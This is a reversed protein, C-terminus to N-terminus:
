VMLSHWPRFSRISAGGYGIQNKDMGGSGNQGLELYPIGVQLVDRLFFTGSPLNEDYGVLLHMLEDSDGLFVFFVKGIILGFFDAQCFTGFYTDVASYEVTHFAGQQFDFSFPAFSDDHCYGANDGNGGGIYLRFKYFDYGSCFYLFLGYFCKGM